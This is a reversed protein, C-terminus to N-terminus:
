ILAKDRQETYGKAILDGWNRIQHNNTHTPSDIFVKEKARTLAVYLLRAEEGINETKEERLLQQYHDNVYTKGKEIFTRYGIKNGNILIETKTFNHFLRDTRPIFVHDFELGKAKHVTMITLRKKDKSMLKIESLSKDTHMKLRLIKELNYLTPVTNALETKLVYILYNLNSDYEQQIIQAKDLLYQKKDEQYLTIRDAIYREAYVKAPNIEQIIDHIIEFLGKHLFDQEYKELKQDMNKFVRNIITRDPSFEELMKAVEITRDGYSSLHLLYRNRWLSPHTFRMILQYFERVPVSRYFQGDQESTFFIRKEECLTSLENVEKNSRVLIATDTDEIERLFETLKVKTSFTKNIIMPEENISEKEVGPLLYDKETYKFTRLARPWTSFLENFNSLLEKNSRYNLQLHYHRDVSIHTSLQDFATYDAGRFRYISQKVDGVVFLNLPYHNALYSFFKTQQRDTDQFEDIFIYRYPINLENSGTVLDDLKAILDHVDMYELKEKFESLRQLSEKVVYEYLVHSNDDDEGFDLQQVKNIPISYNNIQEIIAEVAQVIKYQEIYKFRSFEQPNIEHFNNIVDEIIKKREFNFQSIPLNIRDFLHEQNIKLIEHGFSHITGIFMQKLERLWRLYTFDNTFYFYAKLKDVLKEKMNIAAKNTFTILALNALSMDPFKYKLFIIRNIMITTKGTGAGASVSINQEVLAHEVLYQEKNFRVNPTYEELIHLIGETVEGNYFSFDDKLAENFVMEYIFLFQKDVAKKILADELLPNIPDYTFFYTKVGNKILTILEQLTEENIDRQFKLCSYNQM